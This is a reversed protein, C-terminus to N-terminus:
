PADIRIKDGEKVGNQKFWGQNMELAFQVKKSSPISTLDLPKMQRIDIIVGSSSIFAVDLPILTNKMWMSVQRSYEFDFLMGCDTCLAERGMLGQARLDWNDAFEVKLKKGAVEVQAQKFVLEDANAWGLIASLLVIALACLGTKASIILQNLM